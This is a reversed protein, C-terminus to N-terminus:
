ARLLAAPADFRRLFKWRDARELVIEVCRREASAVLRLRDFHDFLARGGSWGALWADFRLWAERWAYADGQRRPGRWFGADVLVDGARAAAAFAASVEADVSDNAATRADSAPRHAGGSAIALGAIADDDTFATLPREPLADRACGDLWLANVPPLGRAARQLNAPHEHWAMQVETFLRRWQRAQPGAPLYGDISRGVAMTWARTDLGWDENGALFWAGPRPVELTFGAEALSARAADALAAAELDGVELALPDSLVIQHRGVEVHVPTARWRPTALGLAPAAWAAVSDREAVGFRARLWREDPLERPIPAPDSGDDAVRGRAFVTALAGGALTRALPAAERSFADPPLADSREGGPEAVDAAAGACLLILEPM